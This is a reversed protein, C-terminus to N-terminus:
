QLLTLKQTVTYEPAVMRCFYIGSAVREGNDSRGHWVVEHRGAPIFGDVLTRVVRGTVDYVEVRIAGGAAPVDYAIKTMPNFPNPMAPHLAYAEPTVEDPVGTTSFNIAGDIMGMPETVEDVHANVLNLECVDGGAMNEIQYVIRCFEGDTEYGSANASAIHVRGETANWELLGGFAADSPIVSVVTAMESDHLVKFELGFFGDARDITVPVEVTESWPSAEVEGLALVADSAEEIADGPPCAAWSGTVDGYLVGYFDLEDVDPCGCWEEGDVCFYREDCYFTWCGVAYASVDHGVIYKLIISADFSHISGNLTVDAAVQQPYVIDPPCFSGDYMEMPDIPCNDLPDCMVFYKLVHAADLTSIGHDEDYAYCPRDPVVTYCDGLCMGDFVFMGEVDTMVCEVLAGAADYLCVETDPMPPTCCNCNWFEVLGEATGEPVCWTLPQPLCVQPDGENLLADLVFDTCGGCNLDLVDFELYVLVGDDPIPVTGALGLRYEGPVPINDLYSWGLGELVTGTFDVADAEVLAPDYTLILDVGTIPTKGAVGSILIPIFVEPCDYVPDGWALEVCPPEPCMVVFASDEGWELPDVENSQIQAFATLTEDYVADGAVDTVIVENYEDGENVTGIVWTVTQPPGAAYVGGGTASVFDLHDHLEVVVEVGTAPLGVGEVDHYFSHVYWDIQDGFCVDTSPTSIEIGPDPPVQARSTVIGAPNGVLGGDQILTWPITSTDYAYVHDGNYGATVYLYGTPPAVALGMAGGDPLSFDETAATAIDYKFVGAPGPGHPGGGGDNNGAYIIRRDSDVTVDVPGGTPNWTFVQLWDSVDYGRVTNQAMDAVYLTSDSKDYCLGMAHSLDPLSRPFGTKATLTPPAVDPDFDFAYLTSTGRDVSYLVRNEIDMSIGALNNGGTNLCTVYTFALADFVEINGVSESTMFIYAETVAGTVPDYREWITVGAPDGICQLTYRATYVFTGDSHLNYADFHGTHHNPLLYLSAGMAAGAVLLFALVVFLLPKTKM